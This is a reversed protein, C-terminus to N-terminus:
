ADGGTDTKGTRDAPVSVFLGEELWHIVRYALLFLFLALLFILWGSLGHFFGQAARPSVFRYLLGTGSVRIINTVIAIPITCVVLILRVVWHEKKLFYVFAIGTAALGMMSRLGSCAEAVTLENGDAFRIVNADAYVYAGCVQLVWTAARSASRQLPGAIATYADHPLPIMLLLYAIPFILLRLAKAGAVALVAGSLVLVLSYAEFYIITNVIGFAYLMMGLGILVWGLKNSEPALGRFRERDTYIFFASILPVLFGHSYNPENWWRRALHALVPAYLLLFAAMCAGFAVIVSTSHKGSAKEMAIDM